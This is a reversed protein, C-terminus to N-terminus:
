TPAQDVVRVLMDVLAIMRMAAASDIKAANHTLPNRVFALLGESLHAIGRQINKGDDTRLDAVVLAPAPKGGFAKGMLTSDNEDVLGSRQRVMDRYALIAALVGERFHGL